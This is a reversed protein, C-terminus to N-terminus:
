KYPDNLLWNAIVAILGLSCCVSIVPGVIKNENKERVPPVTDPLPDKTGIHNEPAPVNKLPGTDQVKVYDTVSDASVPVVVPTIRKWSGKQIMYSPIFDRMGKDKIHFLAGNKDESIFVGKVTDNSYLILTDYNCKVWVGEITKAFYASNLNVFLVDNLPVDHLSGKHLVELKNENFSWFVDADKVSGKLLTLTCKEGRLTDNAIGALCFLCYSFLLLATKM